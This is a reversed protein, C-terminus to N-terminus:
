PVNKSNPLLSNPILTCSHHWGSSMFSWEVSWLYHLNCSKQFKFIISLFVDFMIITKCFSFTIDVAYGHCWHTHTNLKYAPVASANHRASKCCGHEYCYRGTWRVSFRLHFVLCLAYVSVQYFKSTPGGTFSVHRVLWCIVSVTREKCFSAFIDM